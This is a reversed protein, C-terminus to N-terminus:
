FLSLLQNRHKDNSESSKEMAAVLSKSDKVDDLDKVFNENLFLKSSSAIISIHSNEGVQKNMCIFLKYKVKKNDVSGCVIDNVKAYLIVPQKM